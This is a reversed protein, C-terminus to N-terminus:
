RRKRRTTKSSSETEDASVEAGPEAAPDVAPETTNEVAPEAAEKSEPPAVEPTEGARKITLFGRKEAMEIEPSLEADAIQRRERPKLHLSKGGAALHFTLPQFMQNKIEIM